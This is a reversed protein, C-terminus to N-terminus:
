KISYNNNINRADKFSARCEDFANFENYCMVSIKDIDYHKNNYIRLIITAFLIASIKQGISVLMFLHTTKM